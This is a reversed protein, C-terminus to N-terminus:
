GHSRGNTLTSRGFRSHCQPATKCLNVLHMANPCEGSKGSAMQQPIFLLCSAPLRKLRCASAKKIKAGRQQMDCYAPMSILSLKGPPYSCPQLKGEPSERLPTQLLDLWWCDEISSAGGEASTQVRMTRGLIIPTQLALHLLAMTWKSLLYKYNDVFGSNVMAMTAAHQMKSHDLPALTHDGAHQVPSLLHHM